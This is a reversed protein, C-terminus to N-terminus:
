KWKWKRKEPLEVPKSRDGEIHVKRWDRAMIDRRQLDSIEIMATGQTAYLRSPQRMVDAMHPRDTM